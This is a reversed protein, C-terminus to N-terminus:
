GQSRTIKKVFFVGLVVMQNISCQLAQLGDSTTERPRIVFFKKTEVQCVHSALDFMLLLGDFRDYCDEVSEM